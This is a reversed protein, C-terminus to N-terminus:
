ALTITFNGPLATGGVPYRGGEKSTANYYASAIADRVQSDALIAEPTETQGAGVIAQSEFGTRTDRCDVLVGAPTIRFLRGGARVHFPGM